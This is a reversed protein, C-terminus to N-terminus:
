NDEIVAEVLFQNQRHKPSNIMVEEAGWSSHVKDNRTSNDGVETMDFVPSFLPEVGETNVEALENMHALVKSLHNQYEEIESEKIELRSILAIHEVDEKLVNM